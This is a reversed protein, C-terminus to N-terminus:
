YSDKKGRVSGDFNIKIYSEPPAEWRVLYSKKPKQTKGGEMEEGPVLDNRISWEKAMRRARVLVSNTNFREDRFVKNNRSEWISWVLMAAQAQEAEDELGRYMTINKLWETLVGHPEEKVWEMEQAKAWVEKARSSIISTKGKRRM